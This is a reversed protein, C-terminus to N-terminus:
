IECYIIIAIIVNICSDYMKYILLYNIALDSLKMPFTPSNSVAKICISRIDLDLNSNSLIYINKQKNGLDIAQVLSTHRNAM